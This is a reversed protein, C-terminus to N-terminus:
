KREKLLELIESFFDRCKLDIIDPNFKGLCIQWAPCASCSNLKLFHNQWNKIYKKYKDNKEIINLTKVIESSIFSDNDARESAYLSNKFIHLFQNPNNFYVTSFDIREQPKYSAAIYQFPEIPAHTAKSLLSYYALDTLSDWEATNGEDNFYVGTYINLSSLIQVLTYNFSYGSEFFLKVNRCRLTDSCFLVEEITLNGTLYLVLPIRKDVKNFDIDILNQTNVKVFFLKNKSENIFRYIDNAEEVKDAKIVFIMNEFTSIIDKDYSTVIIHKM